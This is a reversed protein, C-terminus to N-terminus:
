KSVAHIKRLARCGDADRMACAKSFDAVALRKRGTALYVGGRNVYMIANYSSLQIAKNFSSLAMDYRKQLEFINGLENYADAYPPNLAIAKDLEEIALDFRGTGEYAKGLNYYAQYFASKLAIAKKFDSIAKVFQGEKGFETGLNDYADAYKPKLAISRAYDMIARASQGTKGFEIGRSYYAEAWFPKLAIAESYDAIARGSQGMSDFVNGRNLYASSIKGPEKEIISNWLTLNNKWVGIQRGTLYSMSLVAFLALAAGAIKLAGGRKLAGAKNWAWAAAVAVAIAPGLGPLYTYRDAMSQKGVQVIGIVPLLTIVYYGWCALWLRQRRAALLCFVTVAMACLVPLFFSSSLFSIKKPYPYLPALDMPFVMKWLYLVLSRAAVPVRDSLPLNKFTSVSGSEKQAMFALVAGGGSLAIFPLKEM